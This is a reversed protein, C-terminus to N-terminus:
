SNSHPPTGVGQALQVGIAGVDFDVNAGYLTFPRTTSGAVIVAFQQGNGIAGDRLVWASELAGISASFDALTDGDPVDIDWAEALTRGPSRFGYICRSHIGHGDMDVGIDITAHPYIGSPVRTQGRFGAPAIFNSMALAFVADDAAGDYKAAQHGVATWRDGDHDTGIVGSGEWLGWAKTDADLVFQWPDISAIVANLAASATLSVTPKKDAELGRLAERVWANVQHSVLAEGEGAEAGQMLAKISLVGRETLVFLEGGFGAICHRSPIAGAHWSGVIRWDATRPDTGAYIVIAGDAFAAVLLDDPGGGGDYTWSHLSMLDSSQGGFSFPTLEGAVSALPLYYAFSEGRPVVWIRSKHRAIYAAQSTDWGELVSAFIHWVQPAGTSTIAYFRAGRPVPLPEFTWGGTPATETSLLFASQNTVGTTFDSFFDVTTGENATILVSGVERLSLGTSANSGVKDTLVGAAWEKGATFTIARDGTQPQALYSNASDGVVVYSDDRESQVRWTIARLMEDQVADATGTTLHLTADGVVIDAAPVPNAETLMPTQDDRDITVGLRNFGVPIQIVFPGARGSQFDSTTLRGATYVRLIDGNANVEYARMFAVSQGILYRSGPQVQVLPFATRTAQAQRWEGDGETTIWEEGPIPTGLPIPPGASHLAQDAALTLNRPPVSYISGSLALWREQENGTGLSPIVIVRLRAANARATDANILLLGPEANPSPNGDTLPNVRYIHATFPGGIDLLYTQGTMVRVAPLAAWGARFGTQGSAQWASNPKASVAVQNDRITGFAVPSAVYSVGNEGRLQEDAPTGPTAPITPVNAGPVALWEGDRNRWHAGALEDVVIVYEGDGAPYTLHSVIGAGNEWDLLNTLGEDGIEDLGLNHAALLNGDSSILSGIESRLMNAERTLGPRRVLGGPRPVFNYLLRSQGPRPTLPNSLIDLGGFELTTTGVPM